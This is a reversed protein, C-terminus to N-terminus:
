FCFESAQYCFGSAGPQRVGSEKCAPLIFTSGVGWGSGWLFPYFYCFFLIGGFLAQPVKNKCM